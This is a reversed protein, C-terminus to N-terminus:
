ALFGIDSSVWPFKMKRSSPFLLKRNLARGERDRLRRIRSRSSFITCQSTSLLRRFRFNFPIFPERLKSRWWTTNWNTWTGDYWDTPKGPLDHDEAGRPEDRLKLFNHFPGTFVAAVEKADLQTM